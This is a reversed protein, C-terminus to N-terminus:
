DRDNGDTQAAAHKEKLYTYIAQQSRIKEEEPGREVYPNSEDSVHLRAKTNDALQLQLIHDMEEFIDPDRVPTLVEIRRDLNRGMWDASGMYMVPDGGNHFKYIRGHELFQDVISTMRINDSIAELGPVLSSFGRVILDLKVGAQSARYLLEIMQRDELQNMKAEIHGVGGEAVNDMERRVMREMERRTSFPSILLKTARPIILDGQLVQFVRELEETIKAEATFLGHDCYIKSTKANFNGTGIYAYQCPKGKELREALMIKSHVKIRPYSYIVRAGHKEFKRGWIINNEEDFRAKAEVFVTVEKNNELARLLADTLSSESAVRYLSIKISTVSPDEAAQELFRQVYNFPMYPFHVIQDKEAIVKFYDDAEELRSHKITELPPAHLAPNNTPDPFGFFDNFNHYRGGAVMDIKGLNLSKRIHKRVKKPMAEDYLLRTPQGKMRQNLSSYIQDALVNDIDRELYLEADRSLKVSYVGTVEQDPFLQEVHRRIIDDLFIIPYGWNDREKLVVFRPLEDTPIELFGYDKEEAFTVVFYIQQNRLFIDSNKSAKALEIKLNGKIKDEFYNSIEQDYEADELQAESLLHINHTALEPIIQGFFLDGLQQQQIAVRSLIAKVTKTPRLALKKRLKKKVKKIQRLQSVRVRFHEDLNASFIAIFKLREYLPNRVDAAEQLVRGNFSLWNTDRHRYPFKDMPM